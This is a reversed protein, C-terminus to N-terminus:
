LSEGHSSNWFQLTFGSDLVIVLVSTKRVKKVGLVQCRTSLRSQTQPAFKARPFVSKAGTLVALLADRQECRVTNAVAVYSSLLQYPFQVPSRLSRLFPAAQPFPVAAREIPVLAWALLPCFSPGDSPCPCVAFSSALSFSPTPPGRALM